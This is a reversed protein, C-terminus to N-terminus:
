KEYYIYKRFLLAVLGVMAFSLVFYVWGMASGYSFRGGLEKVILGTIPNDASRFHDIITYITNLFITPSLIPLTVKWLQDWATASDVKAAEYYSDPISQLAGIFIIIQVGMKWFMRTIEELTTSIISAFDATFSYQIYTEVSEPMQMLNGMGSGTIQAMAIGSGLLVPLFFVSRFFAKGKIKQNLLIAIVLSIVVIFPTYIVVLKLTQWFAPMFEIDNSFLAVYHKFGVFTMNNPFQAYSSFDHLSVRFSEILPYAMFVLFGILWPASFVYGSLSRRKELTFKFRNKKRIAKAKAWQEESLGDKRPKKVKKRESTMASKSLAM